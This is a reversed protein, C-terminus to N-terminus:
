KRGGVCRSRCLRRWYRDDNGQERWEKCVPSVSCLTAADMYQACSLPLLRFPYLQTYRYSDVIKCLVIFRRLRYAWIVMATRAGGPTVRARLVWRVDTMLRQYDNLLDYGTNQVHLRYCRVTQILILSGCSVLHQLSEMISLIPRSVCSYFLSHSSSVDCFVLCYKWTTDTREDHLSLRYLCYVDFFIPSYLRM